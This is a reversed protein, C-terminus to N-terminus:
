AAKLAYGVGRVTVLREPATPDREIKRRLASVHVECTHEDATFTSGWLHEMIQRRTYASGPEAALLGLIKFESPTLAVQKGDVSVEDRVLDIRIAGVTRVLQDNAARDLERRRLLASVRGILEAASFPKTVYDDAGIELGALLDRESDKATLMIIPVDSAARIQRCAEEGSLRPLMLDLIVLDIAQSLAADVAAAGDTAVEVEFKDRELAYTLGRVLSPEDDVVLIRPSL